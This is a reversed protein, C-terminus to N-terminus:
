LGGQPQNAACHHHGVATARRHPFSPLDAWFLPVLHLPWIHSSHQHWLVSCLLQRDMGQSPQSRLCRVQVGSLKSSQQWMACPVLTGSLCDQSGLEIAMPLTCSLQTFVWSPQGSALWALQSQKLPTHLRLSLPPAPSLSARNHWCAAGCMEAGKPTVTHLAMAGGRRQAQEGPVDVSPTWGPALLPIMPCSMLSPLSPKLPPM